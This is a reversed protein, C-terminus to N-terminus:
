ADMGVPRGGEMGLCIALRLAEVPDQSYVVFVRLGVSGAEKGQRFEAVVIGLVRSGGEGRKQGVIAEMEARGEEGGRRVGYGWGRIGVDLIEM